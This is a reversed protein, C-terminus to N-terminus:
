AQRLVRPINMRPPGTVTHGQMSAALFVQSQKTHSQPLDGYSGYLSHLSMRFFVSISVWKSPPICKNKQM